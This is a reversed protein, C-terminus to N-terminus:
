DKSYSVADYQGPLKLCILKRLYPVERLVVSTEMYTYFSLYFEIHVGCKPEHTEWEIVLETKM